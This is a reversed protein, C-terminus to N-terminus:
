LFFNIFILYFCAEEQTFIPVKFSIVLRSEKTAFIQYQTKKVKLCDLAVKRYVVLELMFTFFFLILKGILNYM